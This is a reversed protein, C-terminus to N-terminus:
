PVCIQTPDRDCKSDTRKIVVIQITYTGFFIYVNLLDKDLWHFGVM